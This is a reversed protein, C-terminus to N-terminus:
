TSVHINTGGRSIKHSAWSIWFIMKEIHFLGSKSGALNGPVVDDACRM